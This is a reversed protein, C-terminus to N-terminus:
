ERKRESVKHDQRRIIGTNQVTFEGLCPIQTVDVSVKCLTVECHFIQKNGNNELYRYLFSM